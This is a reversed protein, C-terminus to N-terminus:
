SKDFNIDLNNTVGQKNSNNSAPGYVMSSGLIGTDQSSRVDLNENDVDTNGNVDNNSLIRNRFQSMFM